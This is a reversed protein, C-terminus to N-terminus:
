LLEVEGPVMQGYGIIRLKHNYFNYNVVQIRRYMM